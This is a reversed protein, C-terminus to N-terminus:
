LSSKAYACQHYSIPQYIKHTPLSHLSTKIGTGIGAGTCSSLSDKLQINAHQLQHFFHSGGGSVGGGGIGNSCSLESQRRS